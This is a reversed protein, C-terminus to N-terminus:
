IGLELPGPMKLWLARPTRLEAQREYLRKEVQRRLNQLAALIEEPKKERLALIRQLDEKEASLGVMDLSNIFYPLQTSRLGEQSIIRTIGDLSLLLTARSATEALFAPRIQELTELGVAYLLLLCSRKQEWPRDGVGGCEELVRERQTNFVTVYLFSSGPIQPYFTKLREIRENKQPIQRVSLFSYLTPIKTPSLGQAVLYWLPWLVITGILVINLLNPLARPAQAGALLEAFLNQVPKLAPQQVGWRVLLGFPFVGILVWFIFSHNQIKQLLQLGVDYVAGARLLFLPTQALGGLEWRLVFMTFALYLVLAAMVAGETGQDSLKQSKAM